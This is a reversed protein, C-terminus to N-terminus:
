GVQQSKFKETLCDLISVEFNNKELVAAIYMLGLPFINAIRSFQLFQKDVSRPPVILFVKKSKILKIM